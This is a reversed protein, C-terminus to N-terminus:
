SALLSCHTDAVVDTNAQTQSLPPPLSPAYTDIIYADVDNAEEQFTYDGNMGSIDKTNIRQLNQVHDDNGWL